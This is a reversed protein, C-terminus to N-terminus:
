ASTMNAVPAGAMAAAFMNSQTIMYATQYGGWSQGQLGLAKPDFGSVGSPSTSTGANRAFGHPFSYDFRTM